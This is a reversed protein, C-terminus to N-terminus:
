AEQTIRDPSPSHLDPLWERPYAEVTLDDGPPTAGREDVPILGEAMSALLQRTGDPDAQYMKEYHERRSKPFKGAKIAGDLDTKRRDTEATAKLETATKAGAVVEQWSKEDVLKMGDPIKVGAAVPEPEEVKGEPESTGEEPEESTAEAKADQQQKLAANIQEETADDPLQEATLGTLTRLLTIDVGVPTDEKKTSDPRSDARANFSALIRERPALAEALAARLAASAKTKPADVYQIKVQKPDDFEIDEGSITFPVRYLEGEDDDVILENPDLYVARIWWWMQSAELSDYYSRRVDELNVSATVGGSAKVSGALSAEEAEIIQVDPGEESFLVQIDELTTIGPGMVGLLAVADIVLRWKHGTVTEVDFNGEISRSPYASGMIDGLWRPVGVYDGVITQKDESLRLNAVVGLSPEGDFAPGNFRPDDHGIKIRPSHIAPDDFATVADLLDEETFTTPGTSLPYEIGTSIIEVNPVTVLAPRDSAM